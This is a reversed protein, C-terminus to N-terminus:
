EALFEDYWRELYVEPWDGFHVRFSEDFERRPDAELDAVLAEFAEFGHRDVLGRTMWYSQLYALLAMESGLYRFPRSLTEITPFDGSARLRRRLVDARYRRETVLNALGEHIWAPMRSGARERLAAHMYEHRLADAFQM